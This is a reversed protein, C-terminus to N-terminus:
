RGIQWPKLRQHVRKTGVETSRLVYTSSELRTRSRSYQCHRGIGSTSHVTSYGIAAFARWAIKQSPQPTASKLENKILWKSSDPSEWTNARRRSRSNGGGTKVVGNRYRRTRCGSWKPKRSANQAVGFM